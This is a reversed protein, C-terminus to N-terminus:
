SRGHESCYYGVTATNPCRNGVRGDICQRIIPTTSTATGVPAAEQDVTDTPMTGSLLQRLSAPAEIAAHNAEALAPQWVTVFHATLDDATQRFSWAVRDIHVKNKFYFLDDNTLGTIDLALSLMHPQLHRNLYIAMGAGTVAGAIGGILNGVGPIISGAAAGGMGGVMSLVTTVGMRSMVTLAQVVQIKNRNTRDVSKFEQETRVVGYVLRAGAIIAGAYPIVEGMGDPIDIGMNESLIGLGEDITGELNITSGIDVMQDVLLPNNDAIHQFIETSVAFNIEPNEVMDRAVESAYETGGTKVQWLEANGDPSVASIDWSPQTPSPAMEVNTYGNRELTEVFNIEAVKGKLGSIFGQAAEPGGATVDSWQEYLSHDAALGPYQTSYAEALADDVNIRDWIGWMAFSVSATFEAAQLAPDGAHLRRIVEDFSIRPGEDGPLARLAPLLETSQMTM